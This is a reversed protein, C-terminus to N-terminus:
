KSDSGIGHPDRFGPVADRQLSLAAEPLPEGYELAEHVGQLSGKADFLGLFGIFAFRIVEHVKSLDPMRPEAEGHAIKSRVDYVGRLLTEVRPLGSAGAVRKVFVEEGVSPPKCFLSDGARALNFLMEENADQDGKRWVGHPPLRFSAGLFRKAALRVRDGSGRHESARVALQMIRRLFQRFRPMAKAAVRYSYSRYPHWVEPSDEHEDWPFEDGFDSFSGHQNIRWGRDVELRVGASFYNGQYLGIGLLPLWWDDWLPDRSPRTGKPDYELLDPILKAERKVLFVQRTAVEPRVTEDSVRPNIETWEEESFTKLKFGRELQIEKEEVLPEIGDLHLLSWPDDKRDLATKFREWADKPDRGQLIDELVGSRRLVNSVQRKPLSSDSAFRALISLELIKNEVDARM